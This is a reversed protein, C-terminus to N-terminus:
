ESLYKKKFQKPKCILYYWSEGRSDPVIKMYDIYSHNYDGLVNNQVDYTVFENLGISKQNCDVVFNQMQYWIKKKLVKEVDTFRASKDNLSKLWFSYKGYQNEGWQNKYQEISELDIYNKEDLQFWNSAFSPMSVLLLVFLFVIKKM